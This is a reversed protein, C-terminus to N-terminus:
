ASLSLRINPTQEAMGRRDRFEEDSATRKYFAHVQDLSM